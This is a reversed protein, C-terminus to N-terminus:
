HPASRHELTLTSDSEGNIHWRSLQNAFAFDLQFPTLEGSSFCALQPKDPFDADIAVRVGDRALRADLGTPWHRRRLEGADLPHWAGGSFESFVYGDRALSLGIDRGSIEARECAYGLLAHLREVERELQREGGTGALAFGVAAALISVIVVVVLLEVLSFGAVGLERRHDTLGTVSTPM